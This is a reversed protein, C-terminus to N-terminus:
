TERLIIAPDICAIKLTPVIIAFLTVAALTLVAVTLTAPDYVHIGYLASRMAQLVGFSLFLGLVIGLLSARAGSQGVQMMAKAMTSGLAMRIGIERARQAVMNAVLGFIGITSLLVALAAMASLLAVEIRQTVLTRSLLDNMSYIGSVPLNPNARALARQMQDRLSEVRGATRVIWNPQFWVHILSLQQADVQAAPIYMAQENMLPAGHYLGSSVPVDAVEGVIVTDKNIFRGIPDGGGYFKRVFSQNVIAARQATPSDADTFARGALVPIQLARFYGPTVYIM